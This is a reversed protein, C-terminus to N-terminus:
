GLASIWCVTCFSDEDIGELVINPNVEKNAKALTRAKEACDANLCPLCKKEGFFGRCPHGCALTKDCNEKLMNLCEQRLCVDDPM